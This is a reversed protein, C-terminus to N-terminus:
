DCVMAYLLEYESTGCVGLWTLRECVFVRMVSFLVECTEIGCLIVGDCM